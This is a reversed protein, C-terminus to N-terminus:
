RTLYIYGKIGKSGNGLDVIYYYTGEPLQDDGVSIGLHNTGDWTNEYPKAGFVKNGWRNLIILENKPYSEIGKIVFRDNVNDGNPSFGEPIIPVNTETNPIKIFVNAKDCLSPIGNDCVNICITDNGIFDTNPTYTVCVEKGMVISSAIGNIPNGCSTVTFSQNSNLDTIPLCLTIVNNKQSTVSTDDVVPPYNVPVVQFYVMATDCLSPSGNDCVIICLSDPGTFGLNPTYTVCVQKGNIVSSATGNLPNGCSSVVYSQGTDSDRIPLCVTVPVNVLTTITTDHIIVPDNVPTVNV